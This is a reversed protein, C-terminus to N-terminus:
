GRRRAPTDGLPDVVLRLRGTAAKELISAIQFPIRQAGIQLDLAVKAAREPSALRRAHSELLRPIFEHFTGLVDITPDILRVTGDMNALSKCILGVVPPAQIGNRAAGRLLDVLLAGLNLRELRVGHYRPLLRRVELVWGLEDAGRTPKGIDLFAHAVGHSDKLWFNLLIRVLNDSLQREIRGVMGFDLIVITDDDALLLNGPHPDAHFTGDVFFMQFYAHATAQALEQRRAQALPRLPESLPRGRVLETVLVSETTLEHWVAPVRVLPAFPALNRAFLALSEAEARFDLEDRLTLELEEVLGGVDYVEGLRPGVARALLALLRLDREVLREVGPRRLKVAVDTGDHLTARHVQALSAAALPRPDFTAFPLRGGLAAAYESLCLDVAETTLSPVRSHLSQLADLYPRALLDPRTSLLQGAKIFVPGLRELAGRLADASGSPPTARGGALWLELWDDPSAAIRRAWPAFARGIEGVRGALAPPQARSAPASSPGSGPAGTAIEDLATRRGHAVSM